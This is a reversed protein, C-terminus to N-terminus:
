LSFSLGLLFTRQTPYGIYDIALSPIGNLAKDVNVEPDFGKYNSIVFVNNVSFTVNLNKIKSVDGFAYRLSANHLKLYSGNELFRTSTTIPNAPSESTTVLGSAINRGGIINSINLVSMATNNYIKYGFQGHAGLNLNWKKYRLDTSFGMFSKPNPDAVFEPIGSNKYTGIGDKDFGQFIPLYYVNIPQNHAIAQAYAGSTGQGHLAGTLLFPTNGAPPYDFRNKLFTINGNASWTFDKGSIIDAGLSFEVGYNKVFAGSYNYFLTGGLGTPQAVPTLIIPDTTKKNFYDITGWIRGKLLTFDIGANIAKVTEWKLKDNGFHVTQLSGNSTYRYVTQAADATFEQNGTEGYGVRLKLNDVIGNDKMFDENSITWAAAVSPFWGYKNSKGFKSSGDSRITGTLSYKDHFNLIARAFTSQLEVTPDKFASSRLNAQKGDQMNDYYHIGTRSQETLNYNFGYVYQNNNSFNTKWYEYGVVANLSLDQAIEKNFNLTHTITQSFLKGNATYALGNDPADGGIRKIWGQIETNRDGVGYNVGYLFRYELWDAFKYGASFNGLLTTTNTKDNYADSLALPNAQGSQNTQNYTGDKNYLTLTPNWILALSILNGNSGADQSIPAIKEAVNAATASFDLSIRKDWFKYQGNFNAVYKKLNTKLIIGDQNGMFFSARYKGNDNGGSLALSYNQTYANNRIIKDFANVNAGSDTNPANYQAIAAKYGGADLVDIKRMEDSIGVNANVDVKGAGMAGKKTTILVVGNAGRAGYIASASADKLVQIDSIENPNIFTLPDSPPSTGVSNSTFGPRPTRGDLAIGDVVYLPTNGSRISNNGRIKVVALGGPQGSSNTIQLGPVKGQLLQEPSNIQGRNFEKASVSAVSGTIDRRKATGYGVVVVENLSTNSEELKVEVATMTSVDVDITTFGVASVTLAKTAEPVALRFIGESNTTTGGKSGKIVVSAGVIGAGKSDKISGTIQKTQSYVALSYMVTLLPLVAKLLRKSPM